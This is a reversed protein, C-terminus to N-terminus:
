GRDVAEDAAEGRFWRSDRYRRLAASLVLKLFVAAPVALLLGVFGFFFSFLALALIVWVPHLGVSRGVIRPSLVSEIVQEAGFVVAVKLLGALFHGSFLAILVAVVLSAILGLYPVFNLLGALLGLLLAYPFGVLWFGVGIIIGVCSALLVQGRLYRGLLRDYESVFRVVRERYAPPLLEEIRGRLVDWDRLLYYTLIPLLVFYGLVTLVAGIGRGIGLVAQLGGAAVDAQRQQLYRVLAQADVDRLTPVTREDLGKIGLGIVWSRVHEIWQELTRLYAPVNSILQSIQDAVAPALVFILLALLGAVPLALLAVAVSRALGLRQLRDVVPDLVYALLFALLFPALLLGAREAVWLLTLVTAGVTLRAVLPSARHPWALYLYLLFLVFPSLVSRVSVALIAFAAVIVVRPLWVLRDPPKGAGSRGSVADGTV